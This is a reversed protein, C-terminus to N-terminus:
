NGKLIKSFDIGTTMKTSEFDKKRGTPPPQLFHTNLPKPCLSPLPQQKKYILKCNQIANSDKIYFDVSLDNEWELHPNNLHWQERRRLTNM